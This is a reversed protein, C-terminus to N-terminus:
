WPTTKWIAPELGGTGVEAFLEVAQTLHGMAEEDRGAEHFLDALLDHLTAQRHRDGIREVLTLAADVREIATTLRGQRRAILALATLAAAQAGSDSRTRAMELGEEVQSQGADLDLSVLGEMIRVTAPVAGLRAEALAAARAVLDRAGNEDGMRRCVRAWDIYLDTLDHPDELVGAAAGFHHVAPEWRGLRGHIEGLRHEIGAVEPGTAWSAATRYADLAATYDGALTHLDGIATHLRVVDPHGLALATQFHAMAETHAFVSRAYDGADARHGAAEQLRGAEELHHAIRGAVARSDSRHRRQLHDALRGHLLRRRVASVTDRVHHRVLDHSFDILGDGSEALVGAGILEDLARASEDDSRGSAAQVDIQDFARGIISAAALLQRGLDSVGRLRAESIEERISASDPLEGTAPDIMRLYHLAVLPNGDSGDAVRQTIESELDPRIRAALEQVDGASLPALDLILGRGGAAQEGVVGRLPHPTPGPMTRWILISCIPFRDPRRLLYGLLDLSASDAWQLDDLILLGNEGLLTSLVTCVGDVFRSQGGPDRSVQEAATHPLAPLLRSAEAAAQPDLPPPPDRQALAARLAEGVLVLGLEDEGEYARARAVPHSRITAWDAVEDALRSKGVGAAGIIAAVRGGQAEVLLRLGALEEDRGVIESRDPAPAEIADVVEAEHQGGPPDPIDDCLIREELESTEPLPPVGLEEDLIRVCERYQRLAGARDGSWVLMLMLQRHASEDLPTLNVRVRAASVARAYDRRLASSDALMRLVTGQRHRLGDGEHLQWEEFDPSDRLSFGGMFEGRYLDAAKQLPEPCRRCVVDPEHGHETVSAQLREAEELDLRIQSQSTLRLRDGETVLWRGDLSRRLVSLTRRLAGRAREPDLGSWFLACLQDRSASTGTIALYVLLAVAKRTDVEIPAGDVQVEVDGLVKISLEDM